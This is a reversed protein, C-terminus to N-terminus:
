EFGADQGGFSGVLPPRMLLAISPRLHLVPCLFMM